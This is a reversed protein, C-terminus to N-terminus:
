EKVELAAKLRDREAVLAELADAARDLEPEDEPFDTVIERLRKALEKIEDSM